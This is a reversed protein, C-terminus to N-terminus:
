ITPFDEKALRGKGDSFHRLEHRRLRADELFMLLAFNDPKRSASDRLRAIVQDLKSDSWESITREANARLADIASDAPHDPHDGTGDHPMAIRRYSSRHIRGGAKGPSRIAGAMAVAM